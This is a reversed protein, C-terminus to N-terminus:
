KYHKKSVITKILSKNKNFLKIDHTSLNKVFTRPVNFPDVQKDNELIEYHLHPGTSTGSNGVYAIIDGKKVM